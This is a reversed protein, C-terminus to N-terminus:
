ELWHRTPSCSRGHRVTNIVALTRHRDLTNTGPRTLVTDHTFKFKHRLKVGLIRVSRTLPRTAAQYLGADQNGLSWWPFSTAEIIYSGVGGAGTEDMLPAGGSVMNASLSGSVSPRDAVFM